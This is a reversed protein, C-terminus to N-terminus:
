HLLEQHARAAGPGVACTSRLSRGPGRTKPPKPIPPSAQGGDGHQAQTGQGGRATRRGLQLPAAAEGAAAHPEIGEGPIRWSNQGRTSSCGPWGGEPLLIGMPIRSRLWARRSLQAWDSWNHRRVTPRMKRVGGPAHRPPFLLKELPVAPNDGHSCGRGLRLTGSAAGADAGSIIGQKKNGGFVRLM